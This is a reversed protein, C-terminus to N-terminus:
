TSIVRTTFHNKVTNHKQICNSKTAYRQTFNDTHQTQEKYGCKHLTSVSDIYCPLINVITCM